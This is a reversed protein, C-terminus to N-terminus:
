TKPPSKLDKTALVCTSDSVQRDPFVSSSSSRKEVETSNVVGAVTASPRSELQGLLSANTPSKLDKTALVCTNDSVECDPLICSSSSRKKDNTSNM